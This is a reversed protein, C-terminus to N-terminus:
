VGRSQQFTLTVENPSELLQVSSEALFMNRLVIDSTGKKILTKTLNTSDYSTLEIIVKLGTESEIITKKSM